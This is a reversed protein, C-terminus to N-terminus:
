DEAGDKKMGAYVYSRVLSQYSISKSDAIAILKGYDSQPVTLYIKQMQPHDSLRKRNIMYDELLLTDETELLYRAYNQISISIADVVYGCKYKSKVALLKRYYLETVTWQKTQYGKFEWALSKNPLRLGPENIIWDNNRRTIKPQKQAIIYDISAGLIAEYSYNSPFKKMIISWELHNMRTSILM